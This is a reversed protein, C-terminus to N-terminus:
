KSEIKEFFEKNTIKSSQDIPYQAIYQKKIKISEDSFTTNLDNLNIPKDEKFTNLVLINQKQYFVTKRIIHYSILNL